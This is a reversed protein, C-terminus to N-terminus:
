IMTNNRVRSGRNGRQFYAFELMFTAALLLAKRDVTLGQPVLHPFDSVNGQVVSLLFFFLLFLTFECSVRWNRSGWIRTITGVMMSNNVVPFDVDSCCQARCIPIELVGVLEGAPGTITFSPSSSM